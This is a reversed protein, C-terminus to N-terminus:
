NRNSVVSCDTTTTMAMGFKLLEPETDSSSNGLQRLQLRYPELESPEQTGLESQMVSATSKHIAPIKAIFAFRFSATKMTFVPLNKKCPVRCVRSM